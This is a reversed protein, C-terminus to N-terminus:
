AAAKQTGLLINKFEQCDSYDKWGIYKKKEGPQIPRSSTEVKYLISM